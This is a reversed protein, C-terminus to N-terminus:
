FVDAPDASGVRRIALLGSFACRFITVIGLAVGRYPDLVLPLQTVQRLAAYLLAAVVTGPIYGLTALQISQEIVLQYLYRNSFGMAKMTAYQPLHNTVDTYLIQYVVIFGIFFGVVTGASFIVGIPTAAKWYLLEVDSYEARTLVKVEKGLLEQFQGQASAVSVGPRLKIVGLDIAGVHREPFLRLFNAHSVLINGDVGFSAGLDIIGGLTLKRGNIEPEIFEHRDNAAVVDGFRPRAM